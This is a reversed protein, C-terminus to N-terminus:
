WTGGRSTSVTRASLRASGSAFLVDSPLQLVMRGDAMKVKLKGADILAKFRVLLNRFQAVRREATAKRASLDALAQKLDEASERLRARDHVVSALQEDLKQREGELREVESKLHELDAQQQPEARQFDQLERNTSALTNGLNGTTAALEDIRADRAALDKKLDGLKQDREAVQGKLQQETDDLKKQLAEYEGTSVCASCCLLAALVYGRRM